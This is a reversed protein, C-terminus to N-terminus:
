KMLIIDEESSSIVSKVKMKAENYGRTSPFRQLIERVAIIAQDIAPDQIYFIM